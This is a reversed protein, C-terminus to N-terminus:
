QQKPYFIFSLDRRVTETGSKWTVALTVKYLGFLDQEKENQLKMQERTIDMTMGEWAGKLKESMKDSLPLAETEIQVLYNALVRQALGEERRIHEARLCNEVCRSLAIMGIGFITVALMVELLLFGASKKASFNPTRM